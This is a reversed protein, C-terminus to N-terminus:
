CARGEPRKGSELLCTVTASRREGGTVTTTPDAFELYNPSNDITINAVQTLTPTVTQTGSSSAM